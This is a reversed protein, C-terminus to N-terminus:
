FVVNITSGGQKIGNSITNRKGLGRRNKKTEVGKQEQEGDTSVKEGPLKVGGNCFIKLIKCDAIIIFFSECVSISQCASVQPCCDRLECFSLM